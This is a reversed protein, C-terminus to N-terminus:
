VLAVKCKTEVSDTFGHCGFSNGVLEPLRNNEPCKKLYYKTMKKAGAATGVAFDPREFVCVGFLCWLLTVM